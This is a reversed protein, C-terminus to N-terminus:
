RKLRVIDGRLAVGAMINGAHCEFQDNSRFVNKKYYSEINVVANGGANRAAKQLQVLASLMARNCAAHDSKNAANTKKNTVIGRNLTAAVSPHKQGGFYFKIDGELGKDTDSEFAEKIPFYHTTDRAQVSVACLSLSALLITFGAAKVSGKM